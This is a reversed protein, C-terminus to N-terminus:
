SATSLQRAMSLIREVAAQDRTLHHLEFELAELLTPQSDAEAVPTVQEADPIGSAIRTLRHIVAAKVHGRHKKRTGPEFKCEPYAAQEERAFPYYWGEAGAALPHGAKRLCHIVNTSKDASLLAVAEQVQRGTLTVGAHAISYTVPPATASAAVAERLRRLWVGATTSAVSFAESIAHTLRDEGALGAAAVVDFVAALDCTGQVPLSAIYARAARCTEAVDIHSYDDSRAEGHLELWTTGTEGASDCCLVERRARRELKDGQGRLRLMVHRSLFTRFSAKSPHDPDYQAIVDAAVLSVMIDACVEDVQSDPVKGRSKSRVLKRIYEGYERALEDYDSPVASM